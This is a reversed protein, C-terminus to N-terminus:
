RRAEVVPDVIRAAGVDVLGRDTIKLKPIVPLTIFSLTAIPSTLRCGLGELGRHVEDLKSALEGVPRVSMLGAVELRVEAVVRGGEVVVVGGQLEALRAVARHMDSWSAGVVVVNHSDHAYTSAVAGRRLGFGSVFGVGVGGRKGHREVVAVQLVDLEPEPRVYGGEIPLEYVAEDTALSGDRVVIVRVSAVGEEMPARL